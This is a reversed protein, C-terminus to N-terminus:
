APVARVARAQELMFRANEAPAKGDFVASGTVVIDPALGLVHGLNTRSVAGDIGVLVDERGAVALMDRLRGIRREMRPLFPQGAWGPNIALLLVYELDDLLPELADLSTSPNLAVGRVIGREPDNVNTAAGLVQLVRHPQRAGEVQFTIIDAGADVFAAVKDLPEEVMLHADKLLRTRQAKLFPPGFTFMPCFVGDAVDTHVLQAGATEVLALEDGLRMLDATMVGISLHPGSARLDAVIRSVAM